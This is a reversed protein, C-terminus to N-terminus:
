YELSNIVHPFRAGAHVGQVGEISKNKCMHFHNFEAHIHM